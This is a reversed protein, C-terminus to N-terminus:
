CFKCLGHRGVNGGNYVALAPLGGTGKAEIARRENNM